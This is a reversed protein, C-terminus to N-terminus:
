LPHTGSYVVELLYSHGPKEIKHAEILLTTMPKLGRDVGSVSYLSLARFTTAIALSQVRRESYLEFAGAEVDVVVWIM